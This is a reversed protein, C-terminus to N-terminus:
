PFSIIVSYPTKEAPISEEDPYDCYKYGTVPDINYPECRLVGQSYHQTIPNRTIGDAALWYRLTDKPTPTQWVGNVDAQNVVGPYALDFTGTKDDVSNSWHLRVYNNSQKDVLTILRLHRGAPLVVTTLPIVPNIPPSENLSSIEFTIDYPYIYAGNTKALLNPDNTIQDATYLHGDLSFMDTLNWFVVHTPEMLDKMGVAIANDAENGLTGKFVVQLTLDTIGAPIPSTTFDFTFEAPTISDLSTISIPASVSYSYTIASMVAGDPPYNSLDYAYNPIIKYRAVAQLTGAAINENPTTNRVKAKIATFQQHHNGYVDTYPAEAGDIISYVYTSPASIELAGRFFYNLLGASYGVARPLLKEAYDHHCEDDLFFTREYVSGGGLTNYLPNTLYGPKVFHVIPENGTKQIWFGLDPVGDEAAVTTPVANGSIYEQLNTSNANPYPFTHDGTTWIGPMSVTDDSFYNANTYEALGITNATSPNNGIYQNTDFFNTIPALAAVNVSTDTPASFVLQPMVVNPVFAKMENLNRINGKTWTELYHGHGNTGVLADLPHADNRVHYPVAMDQVLHMQHGLGKFAQAFYASRDASVTATLASYFLYRTRQWSWNGEPTSLQSDGTQAWLLASIGTIMLDDLGASQWLKLPDHFHNKSRAINIGRDDELKGGEALWKRVKKSRNGWELNEEIGNNFGLNKLYDGNSTSLVSIEAAYESIDMHTVSDNWSLACRAFVFAIISFISLLILTKKM